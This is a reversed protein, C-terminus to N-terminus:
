SALAEKGGAFIEHGQAASAHIDLREARPTHCQFSEVLQRHLVQEADSLV